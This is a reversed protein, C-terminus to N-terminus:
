KEIEAEAGCNPCHIKGDYVEADVTQHCFPCDVCLLKNKDNQSNISSIEISGFSTLVFSSFPGQYLNNGLSGFTGGGACGPLTQLYDLVQQFNIPPALARDGSTFFSSTPSFIIKREIMEKSGMQILAFALLSDIEENTSKRKLKEELFDLLDTLRDYRQFDGDRKQWDHYSELLNRNRHDRNESALSILEILPLFDFFKENQNIIINLSTIAKLKDKESLSSFDIGFQDRLFNIIAELDAQTRITLGRILDEREKYLIQWQTETYEYGMNTWGKPSVRLIVAGPPFDLLKKELDIMARKTAGEREKEATLDVIPKDGYFDGVLRGNKIRNTFSIIAEQGIYELYYGWLDAKIKHFTEEFDLGNKLDNIFQNRQNEISFSLQSFQTHNESWWQLFQNYEQEFSILRLSQGEFFLNQPYLRDIPNVMSIEQEPFDIQDTKPSDDESKSSLGSRCLWSPDVKM